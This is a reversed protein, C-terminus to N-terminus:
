QTVMLLLISLLLKCIEDCKVCCHLNNVYVRLNALKLADEMWVISPMLSVLLNYQIGLGHVIGGLSCHGPWLYFPCRCIWWAKAWRWEVMGHVNGWYPIAAVMPLKEYKLHNEEAHREFISFNQMYTGILPVSICIQFAGQINTDMCFWYKSFKAIKIRLIRLNNGRSM